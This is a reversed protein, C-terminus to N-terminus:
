GSWDQIRLETIEKFDTDKTLLTLEYQIAHAAIWADNPSVPRGKIRLNNIIRGYIRATEKDCALVDHDSVFRDIRAINEEMRASKFAGFYLEGIVISSVYVNQTDELLDTLQTDSGFLAIIANTDLLFGKPM